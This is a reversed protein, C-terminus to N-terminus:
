IINGEVDFSVSGGDITMTVTNDINATINEGHSNAYVIKSDFGTLHNTVMYVNEITSTFINNGLVQFGYTTASRAIGKFMEYDGENSKFSYLTFQTKGDFIGDNFSKLLIIGNKTYQMGHVAGPIIFTFVSTEVQNIRDYKVMIDGACFYYNYRSNSTGTYSRTCTDSVYDVLNPQYEYDLGETYPNINSVVTTNVDEAVYTSLISGSISVNQEDSLGQGYLDTVVITLVGSSNEDLNTIGVNNTNSNSLVGDGNYTYAYVLETLNYDDNTTIQVLVETSSSKNVSVDTIVPQYNTVVSVNSDRRTTMFEYVTEGGLSNRVFLTHVSSNDEEVYPVTFIARNSVISVNGEIAGFSKASEINWYLTSSNSEDNVVITVNNDSQVINNLTPLIIDVQNVSTLNINIIKSTKNVEQYKVGYYILNDDTDYSNVEFKIQTNTPVADVDAKWNQGNKTMDKYTTLTSETETITLETRTINKVDTKNSKVSKCSTNGSSNTIKTQVVIDIKQSEQYSIEQEQTLPSECGTLLLTATSLSLLMNTLTKMIEEKGISGRISIDVM